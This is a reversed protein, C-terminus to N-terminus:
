VTEGFPTNVVLEVIPVNERSTYALTWKSANALDANEPHPDGGYSTGLIHHIQNYTVSMVDQLSLIDRSTRTDQFWTM